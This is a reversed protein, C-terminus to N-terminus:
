TIAQKGISLRLEQEESHASKSKHDIIIIRGDHARIVLDVVMSCPLPVDVGNITLFETLKYEVSLVEAVEELYLSIEAYFNRILATSTKIAKQQCDEVTPTTKQVKWTNFHLEDIYEFAVAELAVIDVMEGQQYRTFFHRLAEHYAMGAVTTSSFRMKERYIYTMEFGKENRAFAEVKSYSWSDILFNKTVEQREEPTLQAYKHTTM